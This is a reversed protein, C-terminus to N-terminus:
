LGSTDLIRSLSQFKSLYKFYNHVAIIIHSITMIAYITSTNFEPALQALYHYKCHSILTLSLINHLTNVISKYHHSRMYKFTHHYKLHYCAYVLLFTPLM